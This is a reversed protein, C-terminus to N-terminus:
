HPCFTCVMDLLTDVQVDFLSPKSTPLHGAVSSVLTMLMNLNRSPDARKRNKQLGRALVFLKTRSINYSVSGRIHYLRSSAINQSHVQVWLLLVSGEIGLTTGPSRTNEKGAEIYKNIQMSSDSKLRSTTEQLRSRLFNITHRRPERSASPESAGLHRVPGPSQGVSMHAQALICGIRPTNIHCRKKRRGADGKNKLV